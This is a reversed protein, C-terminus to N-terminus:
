YNLFSSLFPLSVDLPVATVEYHDYLIANFSSYVGDNIYYMRHGRVTRISHIRTVLTYASAVYYRGPEAIVQVGEESPFHKDLTINIVSAIQFYYIIM